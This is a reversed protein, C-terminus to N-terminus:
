ARRRFGKPLQEPSIGVSLLRTVSDLNRSIMVTIEDKEAESYVGAKIKQLEETTANLIEIIVWGVSGPQTTPGHILDEMKM